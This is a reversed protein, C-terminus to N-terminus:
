KQSVIKYGTEALNRKRIMLQRVSDACRCHEAVEVKMRQVDHDAGTPRGDDVPWGCAQQSSCYSDM